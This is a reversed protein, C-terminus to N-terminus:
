ILDYPSSRIVLHVTIDSQSIFSIPNDNIDTLKLYIYDPIPAVLKKWDMESEEHFIVRKDDAMEQAHVIALLPRIKEGIFSEELLNCLVLMPKYNIYVDPKLSASFDLPGAYYIDELGLIESSRKTFIIKEYFEM